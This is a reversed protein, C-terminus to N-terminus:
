DVKQMIISANIYTVIGLSFVGVKSISGGSLTDVYGLVGGAGSGQLAQAFAERDVGLSAALTRVLSEVITEGPLARSPRIVFSVQQGPQFNRYQLQVPEAAVIPKVVEPAATEEATPEVAPVSVTIDELPLEPPM